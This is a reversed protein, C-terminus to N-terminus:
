SKELVIAGLSLGNGAGLLIVKDGKGLFDSNDLKWLGLFQDSTGTHGISRGFDWMNHEALDSFENAYLHASLGAGVNPYIIFRAQKKTLDISELIVSRLRQLASIFLVNFYDRGRKELFAKKAAKIDHDNFGESAPASDRYMEELEPESELGIFV